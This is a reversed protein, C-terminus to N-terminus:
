APAGIPLTVGTLAQFVDVVIEPGYKAAIPELDAILKAFFSAAVPTGAEAADNELSDILAPSVGCNPPCATMNRAADCHPAFHDKLLQCSKPSFKVNRTERPHHRYGQIITM